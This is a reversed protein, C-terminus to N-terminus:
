RDREPGYGNCQPNSCTGNNSLTWGCRGCNGYYETAFAYASIIMFSIALYKIM